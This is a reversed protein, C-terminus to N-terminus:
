EGKAKEIVSQDSYDGCEAGPPLIWGLECEGSGTVHKCNQCPEM